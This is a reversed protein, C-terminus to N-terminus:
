EASVAGEAITTVLRRNLDVSYGIGSQQPVVRTWVHSKGDKLSQILWGNLTGHSVLEAGEATMEILLSNASEEIQIVDNLDCVIKRSPAQTRCEEWVKRLEQIWAGILKGSLTIRRESPTVTITIKLMTPRM